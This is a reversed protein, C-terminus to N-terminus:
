FQGRGQYFKEDDQQRIISFSGIIIGAVLELGVCVRVAAEALLSSCM